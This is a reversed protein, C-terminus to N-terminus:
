KIIPIIKNIKCHITLNRNKPTSTDYNFTGFKKIYINNLYSQTNYYHDTTRDNPKYLDIDGNSVRILEIEGEFYPNDRTLDQWLELNNRNINVFIFRLNSGKITLLPTTNFENTYQNSDEDIIKEFPIAKTGTIKIGPRLLDKLRNINTTHLKLAKVTKGSQDLDRSEIIKTFADHINDFFPNTNVVKFNINYFSNDPFIFLNNIFSLQYEGVQLINKPIIKINNNLLEINFPIKSKEDILIISKNLNDVTCNNFETSISIYSLSTKIIEGNHPIINLVKVCQNSDINKKKTQNNDIALNKSCSIIILFIFIYRLNM